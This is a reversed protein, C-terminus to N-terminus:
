FPRSAQGDGDNVAASPTRHDLQAVRENDYWDAAVAKGDVAASLVLILREMREGM